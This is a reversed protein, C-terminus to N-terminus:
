FHQFSRRSRKVFHQHLIFQILSFNGPSLITPSLLSASAICVFLFPAHVNKFALVTQNANPLHLNGKM